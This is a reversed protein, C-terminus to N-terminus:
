LIARKRVMSRQPSHHNRSTRRFWNHMLLRVYLIFYTIHFAGSSDHSGLYLDNGLPCAFSASSSKSCVWGLLAEETWVRRRFSVQPQTVNRVSYAIIASACIYENRQGQVHWKEGAYSPHKPDLDVERVDCVMQLGRNSFEKRLDVHLWSQWNHERDIFQKTARQQPPTYEGVDKHIEPTTPNSNFVAVHLRTGQYHPARSERLSQNFMPIAAAIVNELAGYFLRHDVPHM